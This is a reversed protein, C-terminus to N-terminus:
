VWGLGCLVFGLCCSWLCFGVGTIVLVFDDIGRFLVVVGVCGVCGLDFGVLGFCVCEVGVISGVWCIFM